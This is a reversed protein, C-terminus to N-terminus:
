RIAQNPSIPQISPFYLCFEPHNLYHNQQPVAASRGSRTQDLNQCVRITGRFLSSLLNFYNKHAFNGYKSSICLLKSCEYHWEKWRKYICMIFTSGYVGFQVDKYSNSEFHVKCPRQNSDILLYQDVHYHYLIIMYLLNLTYCVCNVIWKNNDEYKFNTDRKVSPNSMMPNDKVKHYTLIAGCVEIIPLHFPWIPCPPGPMLPGTPCTWWISWLPGQLSRLGM